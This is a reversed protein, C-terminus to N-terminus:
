LGRNAKSQVHSCTSSPAAMAARLPILSAVVVADAAAVAAAAAIEQLCAAHWNGQHDRWTAEFNKYRKIQRLLV